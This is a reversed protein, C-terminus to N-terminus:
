YVNQKNKARFNFNAISKIKPIFILILCKQTIILFTNQTNKGQYNVQGDGDTDAEAIMENVEEQTLKEGLNCMLFKLEEASIFGDGDQDFVRFAELLEDAYDLNKSQNTMMALFENFDIEGDGSFM